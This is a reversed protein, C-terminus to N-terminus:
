IGTSGHLINQTTKITQYKDWEEVEKIKTNKGIKLNVFEAPDFIVSQKFERSICQRRRKKFKKFKKEIRFSKLNQQVLCKPQYM